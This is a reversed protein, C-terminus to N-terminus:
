KLGLKEWRKRWLEQIRKREVQDLITVIIPMSWMILFFLGWGIIEQLSYLSNSM